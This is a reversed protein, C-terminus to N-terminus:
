CASSEPNLHRRRRIQPPRCDADELAITFVRGFRKNVFTPQDFGQRTDWGKFKLDDGGLCCDSNDIECRCIIDFCRFLACKHGLLELSCDM